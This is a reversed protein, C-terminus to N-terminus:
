LGWINSDEPSDALWMLIFPTQFTRQLELSFALSEVRIKFLTRLISYLSDKGQM